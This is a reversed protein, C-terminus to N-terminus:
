LLGLPHTDLLHIYVLEKMYLATVNRLHSTEARKKPGSDSRNVLVWLLYRVIM